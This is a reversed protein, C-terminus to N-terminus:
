RCLLPFALRLAAGTKGSESFDLFYYNEFSYPDSTFEYRIPGRNGPLRTWLSTGHAFFRVSDGEDFTANGNKDLVEIPIERLTGPLIQAQMDRPLSDNPGTYMRLNSVSVGNLDTAVRVLDSFSVGYVRDEDLNELNRDGIKFRIFRNGLEFHAASSKRLAIPSDSHYLYAGGIPNKVAEAFSGSLRNTARQGFAGTFQVEVQMRKILTLTKGTESWLTMPIEIGRIPVGRFSRVNLLRSELNAAQRFLRDDRHYEMKTPSLFNPYPSIGGAVTRTETELISIKVQPASTGTVVDFRYVPLDPAGPIGFRSCDNCTVQFLGADGVPVINFDPNSIELVLKSPTDELVREFQPRSLPSAALAPIAVCIPLFLNFVLRMTIQFQKSNANM